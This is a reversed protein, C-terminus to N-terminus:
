RKIDKRSFLKKKEPTASSWSIIDLYYGSKKNGYMDAICFKGLKDNYIAPYNAGGDTCTVFEGDKPKSKFVTSM